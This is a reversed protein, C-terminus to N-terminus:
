LFNHYLNLSFSNICVAMSLSAYALGYRKCVDPAGFPSGKEKCMAPLIVYPLQGLNGASCSALVLGKVHKPARTVKNLVWGLASGLLYTLLVNVLMFWVTLFSKFTITKALVSGGIAPGFVFFVAKNMHHTATEGLIDIRDLALFLGLATILLVKLIPM